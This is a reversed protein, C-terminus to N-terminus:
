FSTEESNGTLLASTHNWENIDVLQSTEDLTVPNGGFGRLLKERHKEFLTKPLPKTLIDAVNEGTPVFVLRVLRKNICERLYNIRLNIHRTNATSKLTQCLEIMSRNDAYIVTPDTQAHGLFELIDRTHVVVRITEDLAKIESETSSHSVTSDRKSFSHIAGTDTGLFLCGGLRSLCSGTTEYSADSFAFLRKEGVGGLRIGFAYTRKLYGIVSKGVEIHQRSPHPTANSSMEGVAVLVDPRSRDAVYRLTGAEPLLPRLNSDQVATSLRISPPMPIKPQKFGSKGTEFGSIDQIYQSQTITVYEGDRQLEMGLYKEIPYFFTGDKVKLKLANWFEQLKKLNPGIILGDDVHVCIKM